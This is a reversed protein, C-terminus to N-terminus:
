LLRDFVPPLQPLWARPVEAIMHVVLLSLEADTADPWHPRLSALRMEMSEEPTLLRNSM